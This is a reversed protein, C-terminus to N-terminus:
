RPIIPRTPPEIGNRNNKLPSLMPVPALPANMCLVMIRQTVSPASSNRFSFIFQFITVPAAVSSTPFKKNSFNDPMETDVPSSNVKKAASSQLASIINLLCMSFSTEPEVIANPLIPIPEAIM